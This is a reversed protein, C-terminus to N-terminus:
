VAIALLTHVACAPSVLLDEAWSCSWVVCPPMKLRVLASSTDTDFCSQELTSGPLRHRVFHAAATGGHGDFVQGPYMIAEFPPGVSPQGVSVSKPNPSTTSEETQYSSM